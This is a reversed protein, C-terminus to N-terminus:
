DIRKGGERSVCSFKKFAALPSTLVNGSKHSRKSNIETEYLNSVCSASSAEEEVSEPSDESLSV